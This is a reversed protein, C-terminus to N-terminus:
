RGGIIVVAQEVFQEHLELVGFGAVSAVAYVFKKTGDISEVLDDGSLRGTVLM